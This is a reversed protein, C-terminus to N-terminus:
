TGVLLLQFFLESDSVYLYVGRMSPTEEDVVCKILLLVHNYRVQFGCKFMM